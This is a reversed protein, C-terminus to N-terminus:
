RTIPIPVMARLTPTRCMPAYYIGLLPISPPSAPHLIPSSPAASHNIPRTLLFLRLLCPSFNNDNISSSVAPKLPTTIRRLLSPSSSLLLHVHPFMTSSSPLHAAPLPPARACGFAFRRRASALPQAGPPETSTTAAALPLRSPM